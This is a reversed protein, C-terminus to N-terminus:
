QGCVRVDPEYKRCTKRAETWTCERMLDQRAGNLVPGTCILPEIKCDKIREADIAVVEPIQKDCKEYADEWIIQSTYGWPRLKFQNAGNYFFIVIFIALPAPYLKM